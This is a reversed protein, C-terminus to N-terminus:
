IMKTIKQHSYTGSKLSAYKSPTLGFQKKFCATFYSQDSFGTVDAIESINLQGKKLMAAAQNLRIKKILDVPTLNIVQKVKRYFMSNSMGLHKNLDSVQLEPDSLNELLYEKVKLIFEESSLKPNKAEPIVELKQYPSFEHRKILLANIRSELVRLSVPKTIYSDAGVNYGQAKEDEMKKATLLIIPIYKTDTNNKLKLCLDYGNMNPMMVDSVIIDPQIEIAKKLAQEGDEAEEVFFRELFHVKLINRFDVNDDVLLLKVKANPTDADKSKVIIKLDPQPEKEIIKPESQQIALENNSYYKKSLSINIKFTTGKNEASTVEIKGKHLEVLNRTVALGIGFGTGEKEIEARYFRNFIYELEEKPIGKGTDSMLLEAWIHSNKKYLRSKVLVSGGDPTYKLSNSIVNHLIKDIKDADFYDQDNTGEKVFNLRINKKEALLRFNNVNEEVLTHFDGEKIFLKLHGTEIKRFDLLQQLLRSLNSINKEIISLEEKNKRSKTKVIEIAVSMISLPTLLEHSINTFFRLKFQNVKESKAHEIKEIEYARKIKENKLLSRYIMVLIFSALSGYILYAWWTNYPAPLIEFSLELPEQNWLGSSNSSKLMFTYEGAPLNSLQASRFPADVIQWSENLGDLKYSFVNKETKYFSMASFKFVLNNQNYKLVIPEPDNLDIFKLQDNVLIETITSQPKFSNSQIESPIFSNFGYYCGAFIRNRYAYMSRPIFINGQLGDTITFNDTIYSGHEFIIRTLGNNTTIWLSNGQDEVMCFVADTKSDKLIDVQIFSNAQPDYTLLGKGSSCVWIKNRSDQFIYHIGDTPVNHDTKTFIVNSVLQDNEFTLQNIGSEATGVWIHGNNDECVTTIQNGSLGPIKQININDLSFKERKIKFLGDETGVWINEDIQSLTLISEYTFTESEDNIVTFNSTKYDYVILGAYRTGLWLYRENELLMCNVTNINAPLLNYGDISSYHQYHKNVIDYIGFGLSKVGIVLNGSPDFCFSQVTQSQIQSSIPPISFGDFIKGNPHTKNVGGELTGLWMLGSADKFIKWVENNSLGKDSNFNYTYRHFVPNIGTAKEIITLGYPTGIWINNNIDQNISYIIDGGITQSDYDDYLFIQEINLNDNQYNVRYLGDEWTGVWMNKERDEFLSKIRNANETSKSRDFNNFNEFHEKEKSYIFLGESWTAIWINGEDDELLSEIICWQPEEENIDPLNYFSLGKSTIDYKYLGYETGIWINNNRDSLLSRIHLDSLQKGGSFEEFTSIIHKDTDFILVGKEATGLWLRNLNDECICEFSASAFNLNEEGPKYIKIDYGDYRNLGEKTLFWMYGKSDQYINRIEEASLGNNSNLREFELNNISFMNLYIAILIFLLINAKM